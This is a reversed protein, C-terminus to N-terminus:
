ENVRWVESEFRYCFFFPFFSEQHGILWVLRVLRYGFKLAYMGFCLLPLVFLISGAGVIEQASTEERVTQASKTQTRRCTLCTPETTHRIQFSKSVFM